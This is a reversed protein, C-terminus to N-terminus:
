FEKLKRINETDEQAAPSKLSISHAHSTVDQSVNHCFQSVGATEFSKLVAHLPVAETHTETKPVRQSGM